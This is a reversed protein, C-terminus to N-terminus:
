FCIKLLEEIKSKNKTSWKGVNKDEGVNNTM